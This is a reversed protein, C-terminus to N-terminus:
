PKMPKPEIPKPEPGKMVPPKSTMGNHYEWNPGSCEKEKNGCKQMRTKPQLKFGEGECMLSTPNVLRRGLMCMCDMAVSKPQESMEKDNRCEWHPGFCEKMIGGGCDHMRKQAKLEYGESECYLDSPNVMLRRGLPCWCEPKMPKPEIPKPEPAKMVPPKSTM